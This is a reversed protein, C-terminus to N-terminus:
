NDTVWQGIVDGDQDYATVRFATDNNVAETPFLSYGAVPRQWLPPGDNVSFQAVSTEPPVRVVAHGAHFESGGWNTVGFVGRSFDDCGGAMSGEDLVSECIAWESTAHIVLTAGMEPVSGINAVPRTFEVALGGRQDASPWTLREPVSDGSTAAVLIV